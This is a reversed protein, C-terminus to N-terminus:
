IQFNNLKKLEVIEKKLEENQKALNDLKGENVLVMNVNDEKKTKIKELNTKHKQTLIHKNYESQKCCKYDCKECFFHKIEQFPPYVNLNAKLEDYHQQEKIKAETKNKCNYFNTIDNVISSEIEGIGENIHEEM